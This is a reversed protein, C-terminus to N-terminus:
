CYGRADEGLAPCGGVVWGDMEMGTKGDNDDVEFRLDRLTDLICNRPTHRVEFPHEIAARAANDTTKNTENRADDDKRIFENIQPAM